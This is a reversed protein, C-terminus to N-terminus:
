SESRETVASTIVWMDMKQNRDRIVLECGLTDMYKVLTSVSMSHRRNLQASIGQATIGGVAEGIERYSMGRSVIIGKLVSQLDMDIMREIDIDM